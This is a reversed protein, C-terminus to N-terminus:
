FDKKKITIDYFTIFLFSKFVYKEKLCIKYCKTSLWNISTLKKVKCNYNKIRKIKTTYVFNKINVLLFVKNKIM